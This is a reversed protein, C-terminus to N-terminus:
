VDELDDLILDLLFGELPKFEKPIDEDWEEPPRAVKLIAGRLNDGLEQRQEDGNFFSRPIVIIHFGDSYCDINPSAWPKQVFRFHLSDIFTHYATTKDSGYNEETLWEIKGAKTARVLLQLIRKKKIEPNVLKRGM